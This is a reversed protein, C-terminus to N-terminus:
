VSPMAFICATVTIVNSPNRGSDSLMDIRHTSFWLFPKARHRSRQSALIRGWEMRSRSHSFVAFVIGKGIQSFNGIGFRLFQETPEEVVVEHVFQDDVM